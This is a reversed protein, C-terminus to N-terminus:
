KKPYLFDKEQTFFESKSTPTFLKNKQFFFKPPYNYFIKRTSIEKNSHALHTLRIFQVDEFNHSINLIQSNPLFYFNWVQLKSSVTSQWEERKKSVGFIRAKYRFLLSFIKNLFHLIPKLLITLQLFSGSRKNFQM